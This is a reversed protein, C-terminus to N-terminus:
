KRRARLVAADKELEFDGSGESQTSPPDLVGKEAETGTKDSDLVM